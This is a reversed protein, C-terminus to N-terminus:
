VWTTVAVDRLPRILSRGGLPAGALSMLFVPRTFSPPPALVALVETAM